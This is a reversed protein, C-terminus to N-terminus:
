LLRSPPASSAGTSASYRPHILMAKSRNLIAPPPPTTRVWVFLWNLFANLPACFLLVYLNANFLGQAQVFRKGAEFAAFGPAGLILVKLFLGALEASEHEPIAFILIQTGFMWIIAIPITVMWLFYVMRQLHLGVLHPKGSGYAQACLTDLSTALGEYVCYGTINSTMTAVSVAGLENKGLHGVALVSAGTLSYQLVCSVILPASNKLLVSAERKWTTTIRGETVAEEWQKSVNSVKRSLSPNEDPTQLLATTETPEGNDTPLTFYNNEGASLRRDHNSISFFRRRSSSEDPIIGNDRLLTIEDREAAERDERSLHGHSAPRTSPSLSSMFATPALTPSRAISYGASLSHHSPEVDANDSMNGDENIGEANGVSGSHPEQGTDTSSGEGEGSGKSAASGM